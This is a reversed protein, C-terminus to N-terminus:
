ELKDEVDFAITGAEITKLSFGFTHAGPSLKGKVKFVFTDGKTLKFPNKESIDAVEIKNENVFISVTKHDLEQDDVKIYEVEKVTGPYLNNLLQFTYEEEDQKLSGQVYLKKLMFKPIM